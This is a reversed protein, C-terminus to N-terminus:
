QATLSSADQTRSCESLRVVQLSGRGYATQLRFLYPEVSCALWPCILVNRYRQSGVVFFSVLLNEDLLDESAIRRAQFTPVAHVDPSRLGCFANEIHSNRLMNVSIYTALRFRFLYRKVPSLFHCSFPQLINVDQISLQVVPAPIELTESTLTYGGRNASLM